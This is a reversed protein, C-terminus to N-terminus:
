VKKQGVLVTIPVSYHIEGKERHANIGLKNLGVDGTIIRRIKEDDGPNPFSAKLQQELELKVEYSGIQVNSLGSDRFIKEFETLSLAHNHSPDRLRELHDYAEVKEPPLAVDAVLVRGGPRCVRIMESLVEKPKVLHHFSYRTLVISFGGDPYPLPSIDHINWEANVLHKEKQLQRACEIMKATIDIGTVSKATKAFECAVLGPGCAVDLVADSSTVGAMQILMQISNMHGSIKSFPVAQKTFQEVIKKNHMQEKGSSM